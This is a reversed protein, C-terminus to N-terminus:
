RKKSMPWIPEDDDTLEFESQGDESFDISTCTGESAESDSKLVEIDPLYNCITDHLKRSDVPKALFSDFLNKIDDDGIDSPTGASLAIIPIIVGNQRLIKAAEDGNMKPMKIDMFIIDFPVKKAKEVAELGNEAVTVRMGLTELLLTIVTRNSPEDEVLLVDGSCHRQIAPKPENDAESSGYREGLRPGAAVDVGAPILMTFVSGEGVNSTVSISGGLLKVLYNTMALGSTIMLGLDLSTLISENANKVDAYPEFILKQIDPSIGVGSDIIDFCVFPSGNFDEVSVKLQVGGQETYKVANGALNILCQRLRTPDTQINAPLDSAKLMKFDLGKCEASPRILLEIEELLWALPCETKDLLIEGTEIRSMDLMNNVLSVLGQSAQYIETVYEKQSERLNEQSLLDCFGVIANSLTRIQYAMNEIFRKKSQLAREKREKSQEPANQGLISSATEKLTKNSRKSGM